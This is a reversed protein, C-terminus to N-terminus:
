LPIVSKSKLTVSKGGPAELRFLETTDFARKYFDIAEAAGEISLYPTVSHYSDPIPKVTM